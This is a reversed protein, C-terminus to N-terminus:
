TLWNHLGFQDIAWCWVRSNHRMPTPEIWAELSMEGCDKNMFTVIKIIAM